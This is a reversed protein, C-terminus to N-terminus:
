CFVHVGPSETQDVRLIYQIPTTQGHQGVPSHISLTRTLDFNIFSPISQVCQAEKGNKRNVSSVQM